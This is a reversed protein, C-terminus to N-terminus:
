KFFLPFGFQSRYYFESTFYYLCFTLVQEYKTREDMDLQTFSSEHLTADELQQFERELHMITEQFPAIFAIIFGM